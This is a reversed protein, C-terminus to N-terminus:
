GCEIARPERISHWQLSTPPLEESPSLEWDSVSSEWGDTSLGELELLQLALLKLQDEETGGTAAAEEGALAVVARVAQIRAADDSLGPRRTSGLIWVGFAVALLAAYALSRVVAPRFVFVHGRENDRAAAERIATLTAPAPSLTSSQAARSLARLEDRFARLAADAELQQELARCESAALEGSEALLVRDQWYDHTTM